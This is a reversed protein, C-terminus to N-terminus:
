IKWKKVFGALDVTVLTNKDVLHFNVINAKHIEVSPVGGGIQEALQSTSALISSKKLQHTKDYLQMREFISSKKLDTNSPDNTETDDTTSTTTSKSSQELSVTRKYEWSENSSDFEYLYLHRDFGILIISKEDIVVISKCVQHNYPIVKETLTKNNIVLLSADHGM